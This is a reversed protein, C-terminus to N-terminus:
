TARTANTKYAYADASLWAYRYLYDEKKTM